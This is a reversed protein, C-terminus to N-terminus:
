APKKLGVRAMKEAMDSIARLGLGLGIIALDIMGLGVFGLVQFRRISSRSRSRWEQDQQVASRLSKEDAGGNVLNQITVDTMIPQVVTAVPAAGDEFVAWVAVPAALGLLVLLGGIMRLGQYM